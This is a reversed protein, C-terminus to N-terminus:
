PLLGVTVVVSFLKRFVTIGTVGETSCFVRNIMPNYFLCCGDTQCLLNFSASLIYIAGTDTTFLECSCIQM